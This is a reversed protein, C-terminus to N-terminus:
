APGGERRAGTRPAPREGAPGSAPHRALHEGAPGSAPHRSHHEGPPNTELHRLVYKGVLDAELNVRDGARLRGLTTVALTHPILSVTFGDGACASVTLSVGDVAVSGKPVLYRSVSPPAAVEVLVANGERRVSRITGVGDVHGTVLHGGLRDGLRLAPELNVRDGPRLSGLTTVRATEPMLDAAVTEGRRHRVTLCVGNVALSEGVRLEGALPGADLALELGKDRPALRRVTGTATVIGTFM